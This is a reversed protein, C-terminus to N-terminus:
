ARRVVGNLHFEHHLHNQMALAREHSLKSGVFVATMHRGDHVIRRAHATFHHAHLKTLLKQANHHDSFVALQIEWQPKVTAHASHKAHHHITKATAHHHAAIPKSATTQASPEQMSATDVAVQETVTKPPASIPVGTTLGSTPSVAQDPQFGSADSHLAVTNSNLNTKVAVPAAPVPASAQAMQVPQTQSATVAPQTPPVPAQASPAPQAAANTVAPTTTNEAPLTVSVAPPTPTNSVAAPIPKEVASPRSNHFLFPLIIFLSGVIVLIGILRTKFKEDM